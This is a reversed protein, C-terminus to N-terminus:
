DVPNAERALNAYRKAEAEVFSCANQVNPDNAHIPRIATFTRALQGVAEARANAAVEAVHASLWRDFEGRAEHRNTFNGADRAYQEKVEDTSPTHETM